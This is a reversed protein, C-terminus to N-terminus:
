GQGGGLAEAFPSVEKTGGGMGKFQSFMMAKEPSRGQEPGPMLRKPDLWDFQEAYSELLYQMDVGPSQMAVQMFKEVEAIRSRRDTPVTEEPNIRINFEGKIDKGTYRIWYRMGDPGIVDIIKQDNWHEFIFQNLKRMSKSLLDAM